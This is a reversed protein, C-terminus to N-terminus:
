YYLDKKNDIRRMWIDPEMKCHQFVMDRLCDVLRKHLRLCSMRLGNLDKNIILMHDKLPDFELGAIIHM